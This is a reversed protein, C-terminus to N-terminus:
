RACQHTAPRARHPRASDLPPRGVELEPYADYIGAAVMQEDLCRLFSYVVDGMESKIM